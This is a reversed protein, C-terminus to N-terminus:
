QSKSPTVSSRARRARDIREIGAAHAHLEVLGRERVLERVVLERDVALHKAELRVLDQVDFIGVRVVREDADADRLGDRRPDVAVVVRHLVIALEEDVARGDAEVDLGIRVDLRVDVADAFAPVVPLFADLVGVLCGDQGLARLQLVGADRLAVHVEALERLGRAVADKRGEADRLGDEARGLAIRVARGCLRRVVHEALAGDLRLHQKDNRVEVFEEYRAVAVVEVEGEDVRRGLVLLGCACSICAATPVAHGIMVCFSARM